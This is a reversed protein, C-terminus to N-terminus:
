VRSAAGQMLRNAGRRSSCARIIMTKLRCGGKWWKFYSCYAYSLILIVAGANVAVAFPLFHSVTPAPHKTTYPAVGAKADLYVAQTIKKLTPLYDELQGETLCSKTSDERGTYEYM